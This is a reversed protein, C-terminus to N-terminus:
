SDFEYSGASSLIGSAHVTVTLTLSVPLSRWKNAPSPLRVNSELPYAQIVLLTCWPVGNELWNMTTRWGFPFGDSPVLPVGSEGTVPPPRKPPPYPTVTSGCPKTHALLKPQPGGSQGKQKGVAFPFPLTETNVADPMGIEPGLPKWPPGTLTCPIAASSSPLM